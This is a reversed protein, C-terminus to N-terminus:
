QAKMKHLSEIIDRLEALKELDVLKEEGTDSLIKMSTPDENILAIEEKILYLATKFKSGSSIAGKIAVLHDVRRRRTAIAKLIRRRTRIQFIGTLGKLDDKLMDIQDYLTMSIPEVCEVWLKIANHRYSLKRIKM